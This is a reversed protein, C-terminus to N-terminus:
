NEAEGDVLGRRYIERAGSTEYDELMKQLHGSMPRFLEPRTHTAAEIQRLRGMVTGKGCDCEIAVENASMKEVCYLRFVTLATPVKQKGQVDLKVLLAFAAQAVDLTVPPEIEDKNGTRGFVRRVADFQEPTANTLCLLVDTPIAANM